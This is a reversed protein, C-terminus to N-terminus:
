ELTQTVIQLHSKLTGMGLVKTNKERESLKDTEPEAGYKGSEFHEFIQIAPKFADIVQM